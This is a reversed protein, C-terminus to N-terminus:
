KGAKWQRYLILARLLLIAITLGWIAASAINHAVWIAATVLAGDGVLAKPSEPFM